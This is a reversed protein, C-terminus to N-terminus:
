SRPYLYEGDILSKVIKGTKDYFKVTDDLYTEKILTQGNEDVIIETLYGQVEKIRNGQKDIIFTEDVDTQVIALGNQFQSADTYIAPIVMKGSTDIYGYYEEGTYSDKVGVAALGENFAEASSFQQPIVMKGHQDLYGYLSSEYSEGNESMSFFPMLGESYCTIYYEKDDLTVYFGGWFFSAANGFVMDSLQNGKFDWFGYSFTDEGNSEGTKKGFAILKNVGDCVAKDYTIPIIEQGQMNILGYKSERGVLLNGCYLSTLMDDYVMPLVEQGTLDIVSALHQKIDGKVLYHFEEDSDDGHSEMPILIYNSFPILTNGISDLLGWTVGCAEFDGDTRELCDLDGLVAIYYHNQETGFAELDAYKIPIIPSGSSSIVGMKKDLWANYCDEVRQLSDYQLPIFLKNDANVVGMKGNKKVIVDDGGWYDILEDYQKSLLQAREDVEEDDDYDQAAIPLAIAVLAMMLLLQKFFSPKRM